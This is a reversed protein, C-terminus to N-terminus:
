FGVYVKTTGVLRYARVKCYYYKGATLGTNTFSTATTTNVLAYTGTSSTSRYIEYGTAGSIAAWSIKISTSSYRAVTITGVTALVPKASVVETQDGYVNATGVTTCANIKYYYTTGTTLGTNTYSNTISASILTYTGNASTSRYVRYGNAGAVATWSLKISNYTASVATLGTPITPIVTVKFSTPWQKPASRRALTEHPSLPTNYCLLKGKVGVM